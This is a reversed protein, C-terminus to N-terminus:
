LVMVAVEPGGGKIECSKDHQRKKCRKKCNPQKTYIEGRKYNFTNQQLHYHLICLCTTQSQLQVAIAQEKM